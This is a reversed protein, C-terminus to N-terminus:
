LERIIFVDYEGLDDFGYQKYLNLAIINERHVEIKAQFGIENIAKMTEEMLFKALGRGQYEPEIGFHHLYTRRGDCTMWSTGIIETTEIKELILFRGGLKITNNIVVTDDGRWEAGLGTKEWLEIIQPFDSDKFDRLRLDSIM